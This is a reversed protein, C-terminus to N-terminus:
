LGAACHLHFTSQCECVKLRETPPIAGVCVLCKEERRQFQDAVATDTPDFFTVWRRETRRKTEGTLADKYTVLLRLGIDGMKRTIVQIELDAREGPELSAPPRGLLKVSADGAFTIALDSAAGDGRNAIELVANNTRNVVPPEGVAFSFELRPGGIGIQEGISEILEELASPKM